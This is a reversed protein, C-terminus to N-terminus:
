DPLFEVSGETREDQVLTPPCLVARDWVTFFDQAYLAYNTLWFSKAYSPPSQLRNHAHHRLGVRGARKATYQLLQQLRVTDPQSRDPGLVIHLEVHRSACKGLADLIEHRAESDSPPFRYGVFVVVEAQRIRQCAESWLSALEEKALQKGPGPTAIGIESASCDLAFESTSGAVYRASPKAGGASSTVNPDLADPSEIRHWDTSGHLKFVHSYGAPGQGGPLVVSLPPGLLEPVHDYNFTVISDSARLAKAWSLYPLWREEGIATGKLFACCAAAVKRRAAARLEHWGYGRGVWYTDGLGTSKIAQEILPRSPGDTRCAGDIQDLFEEADSWLRRGVPGDPGGAKFLEEM